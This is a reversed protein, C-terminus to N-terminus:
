VISISPNDYNFMLQLNKYGLFAILGGILFTFFGGIVTNHVSSKRNFNLSVQFGFIDIKKLFSSISPM